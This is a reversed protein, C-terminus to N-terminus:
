ARPQAPHREHLGSALSLANEAYRGAALVRPGPTLGRARRRTTMVFEPLLALGVIADVAIATARVVNHWIRVLGNHRVIYALLLLAGACFLGPRLADPLWALERVTWQIPATLPM